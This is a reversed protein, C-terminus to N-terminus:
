FIRNKSPDSRSFVKFLIESQENLLDLRRINIVNQIIREEEQKYQILLIYFIKQSTENDNVSTQDCKMEM